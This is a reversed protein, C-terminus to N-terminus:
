LIYDDAISLKDLGTYTRHEPELKYLHTLTLFDKLENCFLISWTDGGIFMSNKNQFINQINKNKCYIVLSGEHEYIHITNIFAYIETLQSIKYGVYKLREDNDEDYYIYIM